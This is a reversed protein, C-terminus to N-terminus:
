FSYIKERTRGILQLQYIAGTGRPGPPTNDQGLGGRNVGNNNYGPPRETPSGQRRHTHPPVLNKSDVSRQPIFSM